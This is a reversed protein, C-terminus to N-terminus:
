WSRDREYGYEILFDGIIEKYLDRLGQSFHKRWGGSTGSRFFSKNNAEGPKRGGSLRAFSHDAVIRDLLEDEAHLDFHTNVQNLVARTDALMEEYRIVLSMQPDRRAHWSRVWEAFAPLTRDAFARLGEEVNLVRYFPYEPHWPTRRVYHYHSVAVDRLDRYVIAYRIGARRLLDVNHESGHVHMKTVVLMNRFRSFVDDPLEYDHSGGMALEYRAVQPILAHSFGPFSSVMKELWTTGSKPLGAVFVIRPSCVSRFQRYGERCRHTQYWFRPYVLLRKSTRLFSSSLPGYTRSEDTLPRM